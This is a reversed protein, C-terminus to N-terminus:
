AAGTQAVFGAAQIGALCCAEDQDSVDGSIGVAGVIAGDQTKILVGGPVPIMRGGSATALAGVFTPNAQTRALFERSGFGMGLSGWAKGFAIDFRMIGSNDERQFAVLHGGADLVAVTLPALNRERGCRLAAEVILAARDLTLRVPPAPSDGKSAWYSPVWSTDKTAYGEAVARGYVAQARAAVPVDFGRSRAEEVMLGLDKYIGALDFTSAGGDGGGLVAAVAPGRTKLANSAGSTDNFLEVLWAADRGLPRVLAMAEGLAQWSVALPLNIALKMAAGAGSPGIHEVRRCLQQLVPMARAVDAEAGGALGLLKGARAPGTTGGVPCDIMAGGLAAVEAALAQEVHPRVTSMEVILKGDLPGSLIGDPAHFVQDLVPADFLSTIAIESAEVVARPTSALTAGAAGLADAKAATRNWVVLEHGCEMLRLAMASGMKGLGIMGIRM